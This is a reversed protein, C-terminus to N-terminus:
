LYPNTPVEALNAQNDKEKRERWNIKIVYGIGALALFGGAIMLGKKMKPKM